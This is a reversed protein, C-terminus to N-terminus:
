NDIHPAQMFQSVIGVVFSLDPRTITLFILKGVLKRYRELDTFPESRAAMLNQNPHM